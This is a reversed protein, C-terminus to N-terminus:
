NKWFLLKGLWSKKEMQVGMRELKKVLWIPYYMKADPNKEFFDREDRQELLVKLFTDIQETSLDLKICRGHSNILQALDKVTVVLRNNNDRELEKLVKNGIVLRIKDENM